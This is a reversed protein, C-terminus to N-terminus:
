RDEEFDRQTDKYKANPFVLLLYIEKIVKLLIANKEKTITPGSLTETIQMDWALAKHIISSTGSWETRHLHLAKLFLDQSAFPKYKTCTNLM